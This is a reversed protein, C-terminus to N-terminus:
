IMGGEASTKIKMENHTAINNDNPSPRRQNQARFIRKLGRTDSSEGISTLTRGLSKTVAKGAKGITKLSVLNDVYLFIYTLHKIEFTM